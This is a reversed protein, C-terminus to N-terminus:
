MDLSMPNTLAARPQLTKVDGHMAWFAGHGGGAPILAPSYRSRYPREYLGYVPPSGRRSPAGSRKRCSGSGGLCDAGDAEAVPLVGAPLLGDAPRLGAYSGYVPWYSTGQGAAALFLGFALSLGTYLAYVPLYSTGQELFRYGQPQVM